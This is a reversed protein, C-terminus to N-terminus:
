HIAFFLYNENFQFTENKERYANTIADEVEKSTRIYDICGIVSSALIETTPQIIELYLHKEREIIEPPVDALKEKGTKELIYKEESPITVSIITLGCWYLEYTANDIYYPVFEFHENPKM